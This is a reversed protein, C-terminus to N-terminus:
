PADGVIEVRAVGVLRLDGGGVARQELQALREIREGALEDILREDRAANARWVPLIRRTEVSDSIELGALVRQSSLLRDQAAQDRYDFYGALKVRERELQRESEVHAREELEQLHAFGASEAASLAQDLEETPVDAPTLAHDNPFDACRNLLQPGLAADLSGSDDVMFAALERVERLAPVGLEYVILWGAAPVLGDHAEIEFAAASGAYNPSTVRAILDDVVPHGLALYEVHESDPKVDPRM